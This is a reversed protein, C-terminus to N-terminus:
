ANVQNAFFRPGFKKQSLITQQVLQELIGDFLQRDPLSKYENPLSERVLLM